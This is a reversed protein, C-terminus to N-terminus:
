VGDGICVDVEAALTGEQRWADIQAACTTSVFGSLACENRCLGVRVKQPAHVLDYACYDHRLYRGDATYEYCGSGEVWAVIPFDIDLGSDHIHLVKRGDRTCTPMEGADFRARDFKLKM